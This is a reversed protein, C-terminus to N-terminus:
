FVKVGELLGKIPKSLAASSRIDFVGNTFDLHMRTALAVDSGIVGDFNVFTWRQEPMIPVNRLDIAYNGDSLPVDRAVWASKKQEAGIGTMTMRRAAVRTRPMKQLLSTTVYTGEAGTDLGFLVPRGDETILRVVPYGVWFLNRTPVSIQRPKRITMTGAGADLVVDLHRLVDTGIMGDIRVQTRAGDVIRQDFRLVEPLVIAAGLGRVVMPGISMSDIYAARAEVHGAVVGLALTDAAALKVGAALAVDATLLTMSAGTDLWFEYPKGNIRVSIVPTGFASRRMPLVIQGDPIVYEPVPMMSFARAWREVGAALALRSVASDVGDTASQIRAMASWDSHWSLAMTLGIRARSQVISDKANSRLTEFAMAAADPDGGMLTRLAAAFTRQEMSHATLEASAIDLLAVNSWFDSRSSPRGRLTWRARSVAVSAKADITDTISNLDARGEFSSDATTAPAGSPTSRCALATALICFLPLFSRRM